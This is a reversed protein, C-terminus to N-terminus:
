KSLAKLVDAKNYLIKRDIQIFPIKGAKRWKMLTVDSVNLLACIQETNLQQDEVAQKSALCKIVTEELQSFFQPLPLPVFVVKDM